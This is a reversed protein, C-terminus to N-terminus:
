KPAALNGRVPEPDPLRTGTDAAFLHVQHGAVALPLRDGPRPLRDGDLRAALRAGPGLCGYAVTDAGLPETWEVELVLAARAGAPAPRLHEPRVGVLVPRGAQGPLRGPLPLSTTGLDVAGGAGDVRGELFNMAPSGIFGAVFRTGPRRYVDLPRGIQEVRGANLVVLRDGLTMAEVQDHTVYVGTTRLRQQLRRLELRMEVRLKADLNSLPEDFLFAQPERVICRGMAVRQRQGGSLQRPKRQLLESLGLMRAAERVRREVEDRPMRRNRLGYAMNDHVTMHPYLAYNQFVMAIDRDMPELENVRRGGIRIEGSGIRELGAILRLLTSKGCGSPGLIVMMEGDAVDLSVEELVPTAGFSKSVRDVAIEAM